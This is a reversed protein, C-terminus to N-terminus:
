RDVSVPDAASLWRGDSQADNLSDAEAIIFRQPQAATGSVIFSQMKPETESMTSRQYNEAATM